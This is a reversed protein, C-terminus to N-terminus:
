KSDLEQLKCKVDEEFSKKVVDRLGKNVYLDTFAGSHDPLRARVWWRHNPFDFKVYFVEWRLRLECFVEKIIAEIDSKKLM